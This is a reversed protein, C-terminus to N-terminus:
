DRRCDYHYTNETVDPSITTTGNEDTIKKAVSVTTRVLTTTNIRSDQPLEQPLSTEEIRTASPPRLWYEEDIENM